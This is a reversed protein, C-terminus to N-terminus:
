DSQCKIFVKMLFYNQLPFLLANLRQVVSDVNQRGRSKMGPRGLDAESSVTNM